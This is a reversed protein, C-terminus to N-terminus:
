SNESDELEVVQELRVIEETVPIAGYTNVAAEQLFIV